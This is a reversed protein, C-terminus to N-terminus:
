KSAERGRSASMNAYFKRAMALSHGNLKIATTIEEETGYNQVWTEQSHRGHTNTVGTVEKFLKSINTGHEDFLVSDSKTLERVNAAADGTLTIKIPKGLKKENVGTKHTNSVLRVTDKSVIVYNKARDTAKSKHDVVHLRLFTGTRPVGGQLYYIQMIARKWRPNSKNAAYRKVKQLLDNWDKYQTTQARTERLEKTEFSLIQQKTTYYDEAKRNAKKMQHSYAPCANKLFGTSIVQWFMLLSTSAYPKGNGQKLRRNIIDTMNETDALYPVISEGEKYGALTMMKTLRRKYSKQPLSGLKHGICDMYADITLHTDLDTHSVTRINPDSPRTFVTVDQVLSSEVDQATFESIIKDRVRSAGRIDASPIPDFGSDERIKNLVGLTIGHEKMSSVNPITGKRIRELFKRKQEAAKNENYKKRAKRARMSKIEPTMNKYPM